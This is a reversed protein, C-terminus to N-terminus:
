LRHIHSKRVRRRSIIKKKDIGKFRYVKNPNSFIMLFIETMMRFDIRREVDYYCLLLGSCVAERYFYIEKETILIPGAEFTLLGVDEVM